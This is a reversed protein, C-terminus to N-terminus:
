APGRCHGRRRQRRHPRPTRRHSRATRITASSAFAARSCPPETDQFAFYGDPHLIQMDRPRAGLPRRPGAARALPPHTRDRSTSPALVTGQHVYDGPRVRFHYIHTYGWGYGPRAADEIILTSYYPGSLQISVVTGATIAHIPTGNPLVIDLADHMYLMSRDATGTYQGFNNVVWVSDYKARQTAADWAPDHQPWPLKGAPPPAAYVPPGPPTFPPEVEEPAAADGACGALACLAALTIPAIRRKAALSSVFPTM